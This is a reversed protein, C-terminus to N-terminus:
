PTSPLWSPIERVERTTADDSAPQGVKTEDAEPPRVETPLAPKLQEMEEPTVGVQWTFPRAEYASYIRELVTEAGPKEIRRYWIAKLGDHKEGAKRKEGPPIETTYITREEKPASRRDFIYPGFVETRRDDRTGYYIFYARDDEDTFTQVLLSGPTDNKFKLDVRPPYVTADTGQPSYYSVAYSHNKRQLIPLGYEWPGRYATSSVQCLGGGYDPLTTEGQIVLEKRYGQKAGVPGLTEGFSFTAGQPILHGNFRALGVGINHRRNVPSGAFVSEGVMVVERIGQARLGADEVRVEPPIEEVPLLVTDITAQLAQKTLLAALAEQVKRGPLGRGDFVVSGTGNSRITVSRPGRNLKASVDSAITRAIADENWDTVISSSWGAPLREDKGCTKMFAPPEAEAGRFKWIRRPTRWEPHSSVRISIIHHGSTYTIVPPAAYASASLLMGLGVITTTFWAKM